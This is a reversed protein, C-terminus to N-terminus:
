NRYDNLETWEYADNNQFDPYTGDSTNPHRESFDSM